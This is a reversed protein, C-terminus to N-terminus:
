RRRATPDRRGPRGRARAIRDPYALALLGGVGLGLRIDPGAGPATRAWGEAMRRMDQARPSRDRGFREVRAAIDAGDGGLGREVLVAAIAAAESGAGTEGAKLVM